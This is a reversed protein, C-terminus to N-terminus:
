AEEVFEGMKSSFAQFAGSGPSRLPIVLESVM